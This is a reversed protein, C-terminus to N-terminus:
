RRNGGRRWLENQEHRQIVNSLNKFEKELYKIFRSTAPSLAGKPYLLGLNRDPHGIKVSLAGLKNQRRLSYVVSYPLVTLADSGTLVNSVAGLSGGSFSVKLDRVGIAELVRRMDHYLPSNAPPAIWGYEAIDGVRLGEKRLLPHGIRCAIVNRGPLIPTFELDEDVEAANMPLVGLDLSGSHLGTKVESAYGYSQDIRLGPHEMQYAALMASIVGDMFFPTGAIRVAGSKGGKYQAILTASTRQAELVKRGEAALSLCFPTPVLPRKNPEFLHTGVRDELMSLSRSVSPQSKGLAKAGETLGGHDVIAALISLLRPDLNM